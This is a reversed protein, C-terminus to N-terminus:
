HVDKHGDYPSNSQTVLNPGPEYTRGHAIGYEGRGSTTLAREVSPNGLRGENGNRSPLSSQATGIERLTESLRHEGDEHDLWTDVALLSVTLTIAALGAGIFWLRAERFSSKDAGHGM